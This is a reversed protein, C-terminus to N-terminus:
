GYLLLIYVQDRRKMEEKGDARSSGWSLEHGAIVM